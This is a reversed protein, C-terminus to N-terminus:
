YLSYTKHVAAKKKQYPSVYKHDNKKKQLTPFMSTKNYKSKKTKSSKVIPPLEEDSGYKHNKHTSGHHNSKKKIKKYKNSNSGHNSSADM